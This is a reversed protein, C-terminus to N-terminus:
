DIRLSWIGKPNAEWSRCQRIEYTGAPVMRNLHENHILETDQEVKVYGLVNSAEKKTYPVFQVPTAFRHNDYSDVTTVDGQPLEEIQVFALDGQQAKIREYNVNGIMWKYCGKIWSHIPNYDGGKSRMPHTRHFHVRIGNAVNEFIILFTPYGQAQASGTLTYFMLGYQDRGNLKETEETVVNGRFSYGRTLVNFDLAYCYTTQYGSVRMSVYPVVVEKKENNVIPTLASRTKATGSSGEKPPELENASTVLKPIGKWTGGAHKGLYEPLTHLVFQFYSMIDKEYTTRKAAQEAIEKAVAPYQALMEEWLSWNDNYVFYSDGSKRFFTGIPITGGHVAEHTLPFKEKDIDVFDLDDMIKNFAGTAKRKLVAKKVERADPQADIVAQLVPDISYYYDSKLLCDAIVDVKKEFDEQSEVVTFMKNIVTSMRIGGLTRRGEEFFLKFASAAFFDKKLLEQYFPQVVAYAKAVGDKKPDIKITTDLNLDAERSKLFANLLSRDKQFSKKLGYSSEINKYDRILDHISREGKSSYTSGGYLRFIEFDVGYIRVYFMGDEKQTLKFNKEGYLNGIKLTLEDSIQVGKSWHDSSYKPKPVVTRPIFLLLKKSNQVYWTNQGRDLVTLDYDFTTQRSYWNGNYKESKRIYVTKNDPIELLDYLNTDYETSNHRQIEYYDGTKLQSLDSLTLRIPTEATQTNEM